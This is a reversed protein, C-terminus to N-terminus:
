ADGASPAAPLAHHFAFVLQECHKAANAIALVEVAAEKHREIVSVFGSVEYDHHLLRLRPRDHEDTKVKGTKTRILEVHTLEHDFMALRSAEDLRGYLEEDFDIVVDAHMLLRDKPQVNKITAACAHGHLKLAPGDPNQAGRVGVRLGVEELEPHWRRLADRMVAVEEEDAKEYTTGV